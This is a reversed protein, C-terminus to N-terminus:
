LSCCLRTVEKRQKDKKAIDEKLRDIEGKQDDHRKDMKEKDKQLKELEQQVHMQMNAHYIYRVYM